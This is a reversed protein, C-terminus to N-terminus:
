NEKDLQTHDFAWLKCTYDCPWLKSFMFHGFRLKGETMYLPCSSHFLMMARDVCNAIDDEEEREGAEHNVTGVLTNAMAFNNSYELRIQNQPTM